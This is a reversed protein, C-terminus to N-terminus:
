ADLITASLLLSAALFRVVTSLSHCPEPTPYQSIRSIGTRFSPKGNLCAMLRQLIGVLCVCVLRQLICIRSNSNPTSYMVPSPLYPANKNETAVFLAFFFLLRRTRLVTLSGLHHTISTASLSLSISQVASSILRSFQLVTRTMYM